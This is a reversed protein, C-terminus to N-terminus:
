LLRASPSESPPRRTECRVNNTEGVLPSRLDRKSRQKQELRDGLAEGPRLQRQVKRLGARPRIDVMSIIRLSNDPKRAAIAEMRRVM